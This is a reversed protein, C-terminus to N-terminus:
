LCGACGPETTSQAPQLNIAAGPSQAARLKLPANRRRRLGNRVAARRTSPARIALLADSTSESTAAATSAPNTPKAQGVIRLNSLEEAIERFKDALNSGNANWFLRAPKSPVSPDSRHRSDSACRRMADIADRENAVSTSLDLAVTMVIVGAAKADGCAPRCGQSTRTALSLRSAPKAPATPVPQVCLNDHGPAIM